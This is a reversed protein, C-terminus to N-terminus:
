IYTVGDRRQLWKKFARRMKAVVVGVEECWQEIGKRRHRGMHRVGCVVNTCEMVIDSFM